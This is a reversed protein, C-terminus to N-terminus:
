FAFCSCGLAGWFGAIDASQVPAPHAAAHAHRHVGCGRALVPPLDIAAARRQGGYHNVPTWDPSAPPLPPALDKFEGTGHVPKGGVITLMSVIDGIETEPVSFYDASLVTLDAFQGPAIAGKSHDEGSFWASGQTYLRLATTRDLRNAAPYLSLGGVTRGTVLWRLVVWPNHSAVRTADTEAGVPLGMALMRRIPPTTEAARAGYREVFYEGQFAMRHQIAIGGGLAMVREINRPTITEAHDFFWRLGNFPVDRDIREFVDLFRTISEDYTAHLRFPWRQEALLRVVRELEAEMSAALDPRPELFDEFDAASFVLMEGGGNMRYFDDGQGP